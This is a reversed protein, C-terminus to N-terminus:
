YTRVLIAFIEDESGENYAYTCRSRGGKVNTSTGM